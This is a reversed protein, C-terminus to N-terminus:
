NLYGSSLRYCILFHSTVIGAAALSLSFGTTLVGPPSGSGTCLTRASLRLRYVSNVMGLFRSGASGPALLRSGASGPLILHLNPATQWLPRIRCIGLLKYPPDAYRASLRLRYKTLMDPPSGSGTCTLMGPPSGSGTGKDTLLGPPECVMDRTCSSKRTYPGKM